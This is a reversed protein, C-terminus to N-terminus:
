QGDEKKHVVGTGSCNHCPSVQPEPGFEGDFEWHCDGTGECTPCEYAQLRIKHEGFHLENM